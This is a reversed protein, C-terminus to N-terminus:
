LEFNLNYIFLDRFSSMMGRLPSTKAYHSLRQLEQPIRQAELPFINMHLPRGEDLLAMDGDLRGVGGFGLGLYSTM